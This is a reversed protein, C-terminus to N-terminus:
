LRDPYLHNGQLFQVRQRCRLKLIHRYEPAIQIVPPGIAHPARGIRDLVIKLRAATQMEALTQVRVHVRMLRVKRAHSLVIQQQVCLM